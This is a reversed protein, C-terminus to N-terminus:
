QRGLELNRKVSWDFLIRIQTRGVSGLVLTDGNQLHTERRIERPGSFQGRILWTGNSSALDTVTVRQLEDCRLSCHEGSVASDGSIPVDCGADRGIVYKKPQKDPTFLELSKTEKPKGGQYIQLSITPGTSQQIRTKGFAEQSEVSTGKMPPMGSSGVRPTQSTERRPSMRSGLLSFQAVAVFFGFFLSGLLIVEVIWGLRKITHMKAGIDEALAQVSVGQERALPELISRTAPELSGVDIESMVFGLNQLAGFFVIVSILTLMGLLLKSGAYGLALGKAWGKQKMLGLGAVFLVIGLILGVLISDVLALVFFLSFKSMASVLADILEENRAIGEQLNLMSSLSGVRAIGFIAVCLAVLRTLLGTLSIGSDIGGLTKVGRQKM